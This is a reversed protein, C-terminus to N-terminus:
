RQDSPPEVESAAALLGETDERCASCNRLHALVGPYKLVVDDGRVVADVYQDMVAFVAECGPDSDDTGLLREFLQDTM